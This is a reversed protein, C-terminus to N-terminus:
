GLYICAENCFGSNIRAVPQPGTPRNATPSALAMPAVLIHAHFTGPNPPAPSSPAGGPTQPAPPSPTGGPNPPSPPKTSWWPKPKTRRWPKPPSPAQHAALTQPSKPAALTEHSSTLTCAGWGIGVLARRNPTSYLMMDQCQKAAHSRVNNRLPQLQGPCKSCIHDDVALTFVQSLSTLVYRTPSPSGKTLMHKTETICSVPPFPTPRSNSHVPASTMTLLQKERSLYM